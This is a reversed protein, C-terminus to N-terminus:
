VTYVTFTFTDAPTIWSHLSWYTNEDDEFFEKLSAGQGWSIGEIQSQSAITSHKLDALLEPLVKNKMYKTAKGIRTVGLKKIGM